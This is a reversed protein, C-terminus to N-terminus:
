HRYIKTSKRVKLAWNSNNKENFGLELKADLRKLVLGEYLDTVILKEYLESFNHTYSPARFVGQSDTFCLHDYQLIGKPTVQMRQSPWINEMLDLREQLTSGILYKSDWVLLDWLVFGKLIGGFEDRKSKDLLEGAVVLWGDCKHMGMFNIEKDVRTKPEDHRNRIHLDIGNTAITVASGNYKPQGIFRGDDYKDIELPNIKNEPRPPFLFKYKDYIM